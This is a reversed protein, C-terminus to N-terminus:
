DLEGLLELLERRLARADQVADWHDLAAALRRRVDNEVKRGSSSDLGASVSISKDGSSGDSVTAGVRFGTFGISVSMARSAKVGPAEV